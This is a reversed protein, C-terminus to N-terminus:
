IRGQLPRPIHYKWDRVHISIVVLGLPFSDSIYINTPRREIINSMSIGENSRKLM